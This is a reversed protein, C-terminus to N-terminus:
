KKAPRALIRVRKADSWLRELGYFDRVPQYFVHAVVSIFDVVTWGSADDLAVRSNTKVGVRELEEIIARAIASAQRHSAGSVIVFYDCFGAVQRL